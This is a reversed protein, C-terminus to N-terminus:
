RPPTFIFYKKLQNCCFARLVAALEISLSKMSNGYGYARDKQNRDEELEGTKLQICLIKESRTLVAGSNSADVLKRAKKIQQRAHVAEARLTDRNPVSEVAGAVDDAHHEDVSSQEQLLATALDQQDRLQFIGNRMVAHLFHVNGMLQSKWSRFASRRDSRTKQKTKRSLEAPREVLDCIRAKLQANEMFNEEFSRQLFDLANEFMKTSLYTREQGHGADHRAKQVLMLADELMQLTSNIRVPGVEQVGDSVRQKRVVPFLLVHALNEHSPTQLLKLM